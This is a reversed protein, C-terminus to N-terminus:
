FGAVKEADTYKCPTNRPEIFCQFRLSVFQLEQVMNKTCDGALAGDIKAASAKLVALECRSGRM